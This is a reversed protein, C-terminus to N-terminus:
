DGDDRFPLIRALDPIATAPPRAHSGGTAKTGNSPLVCQAIKCVPVTARNTTANNGSVGSVILSNKRLDQYVERFSQFLSTEHYPIEHSVCYARVIKQVQRLKNAPMTPFLHHEIQCSLGGTCYDIGPHNKINRSTLVQERLFNVATDGHLLPMGQHNPAFILTLYLGLFAEQALVFLIAGLWGLLLYALGFFWCAHLILLSVEIVPRAVRHRILFRVSDVKLVFGEFLSLPFFCFHQFKVTIRALGRKGAAQEKTFAFLPIVIDPDDTIHNPSCHHLNHKHVWWSYSFGILLNSHILGLAENGARGSFIEQHGADHVIFGLQAFVFALFAANCLEAWPNHFRAILLFAGVLLILNLLVKRSYYAPQKALLGSQRVLTQLDRFEDGATSRM